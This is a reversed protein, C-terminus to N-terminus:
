IIINQNILLILWGDAAVVPWRAVVMFIILKRQKLQIQNFNEEQARSFPALLAMLLARIRRTYINLFKVTFKRHISILVKLYLYPFFEFSM